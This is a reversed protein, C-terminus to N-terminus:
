SSRHVVFRHRFVTSDIGEMLSEDYHSMFNDMAEERSVFQVSSINELAEINQGIARASDEDTIAEDLAAEDFSGNKQVSAIIFCM